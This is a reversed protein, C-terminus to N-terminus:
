NLLYSVFDDAQLNLADESGAYAKQLTKSTDQRPTSVWLSNPAGLALFAPLDGYKAAGPLFDADWDSTLEAFRFGGTEVVARDISDGAVARAAAVWHGAGKLGIMSVNEVKWKPHTQAFAVCTLLNHVRKSFVSDNYGYYYVSSLRWTSGPKSTDGPYQTRVNEDSERDKLLLEGQMWLDPAIISVGADLLQQAEARLKGNPYLNAKGDPFAWIATRGKWDAPYLFMAPIVEDHKQNKISGSMALYGEREEKAALEFDLDDALPLSRNILIELGSRVLDNADPRSQLQKEADTAWWKLLSTEHKDGVQDESPGPHGNSWVTLDEKTLRKFDRELVPRSLGLRFHENVFNYMHTRSVHNYNHKFHVDYHAQFKNKAGLMEYLGFLEPAGKTKLERTWDDAATMGQPRPAVAAAIDINGQGIRLYYTNECTCGGQMATSPMVCPFSADIREDIAALMQTQTGGGSAGTIMLRDPDVGPLSALFDLSRVSNWTQIGFNTQLHNAAQPSVLGWRGLEPRNLHPRPGRRHETFQISDSNGLMDYHFVFCGMRALQVCRAQIPNRAANMFREAGIAIQNKAAAEGADYFRAHQWHGHPCLIAPRVGNKEGHTLSIGSPRYLNGTVFHGPFSEFFVKEVIYDGMNLEGHIVPNLPTKTPMPWLGSGVQIRLKIHERRAEWQSKSAVSRFPHYDHLTLPPAFRADPPQENEPFVRLEQAPASIAVFCCAGLIPLFLHRRPKMFGAYDRM